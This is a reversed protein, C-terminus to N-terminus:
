AAHKANAWCTGRGDECCIGRIHRGTSLFSTLITGRRSYSAPRRLRSVKPERRRLVKSWSKSVYECRRDSGTGSYWGNTRLLNTQLFGIFNRNSTVVADM